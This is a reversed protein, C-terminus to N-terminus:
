ELPEESRVRGSLTATIAGLIISKDDPTLEGSIKRLEAIMQDQVKPDRGLMIKTIDDTKRQITRDSFNLLSKVMTLGASVPNGAAANVGVSAADAVLKADAQARPQTPSGALRARTKAFTAEREMAEEFVDFQKGTGIVVEIKERIADNGFLRKKADAGDAASAIRQRLSKAAGQQFLQQESPTM